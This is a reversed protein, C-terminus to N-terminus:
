TLELPEIALLAGQVPTILLQYRGLTVNLLRFRGQADSETEYSALGAELPQLQILAPTVQAQEDTSMLEGELDRRQPTRVTVLWEIEARETTYLQRYNTVPGGRVGQLAVQQRSDWALTARLNQVVRAFLSPPQQVQSFLEAYRAVTSPTPESQRAVALEATLQRLTALARRCEACEALHAAEEDTPRVTDFVFSYLQAASLHNM